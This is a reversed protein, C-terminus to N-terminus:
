EGQFLLPAFRILNNHWVLWTHAGPTQVACKRERQRIFFADVDSLCLTSLNGHRETGLWKLLVMMRFRYGEVTKPSLGRIKIMDSCFENLLADYPPKPQDPLQGLFRFWQTAVRSFYVVSGHGKKARRCPGDDEAWQQAASKIESPTVRRVAYLNMTRIIHRLYAAKMSSERHGAGLSELHTLFLNREHLLPIELFQKQYAGYRSIAQIM